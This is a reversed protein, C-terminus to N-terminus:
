FRGLSVETRLIPFLIRVLVWVAGAENRATERSILEGRAMNPM